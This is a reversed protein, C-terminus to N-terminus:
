GSRQLVIALGFIGLLVLATGPMFWVTFGFILVFLAVFVPRAARDPKGARRLEREIGGPPAGTLIRWIARGDSDAPGGLGDGYRLPLASCMLQISAAWAGASTVTVLEPTSTRLWAVWLVVAAALTVSPGAAAIWLEDRPHRVRAPEYTVKGGLFGAGRLSMSVEGDTLALAAFAHGSEHLLLLVPSWAFVLVPFELWDPV